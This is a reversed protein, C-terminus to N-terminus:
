YKGGGGNGGKLDGLMSKLDKLNVKQSSKRV